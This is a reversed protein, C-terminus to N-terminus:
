GNKRAEKRYRFVTDLKLDIGLTAFRELMEPASMNPDAQWWSRVMGVRGDKQQSKSENATNPQEESLKGSEGPARYLSTEPKM